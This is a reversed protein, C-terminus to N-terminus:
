YIKDNSVGGGGSSSQTQTPTVDEETCATITMASLLAFALTYLVTKM